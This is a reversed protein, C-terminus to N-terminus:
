QITVGFGLVEAAKIAGRATPLYGLLPRGMAASLCNLVWEVELQYCNWYWYTDIDGPKMHEHITARGAESWLDMLQEPTKGRCAEFGAISGDLKPGEAYDAAAAKIGDDIIRDLFAALNM